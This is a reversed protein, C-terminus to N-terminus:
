PEDTRVREFGGEQNFAADVQDVTICNDIPENATDQDPSDCDDTDDVYDFGATNASHGVVGDLSYSQNADQVAGTVDALESTLADRVSALGVLLGIVVMTAIMILEASVVFGREDSWFRKM